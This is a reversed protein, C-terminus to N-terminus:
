DEGGKAWHRGMWVVACRKEGAEACATNARCREIGGVGGGWAGGEVDRAEVGLLILVLEDRFEWGVAHIGVPDDWHGGCDIAGVVGKGV